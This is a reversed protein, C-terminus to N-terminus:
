HAENGEIYRSKVFHWHHSKLVLHYVFALGNLLHICITGYIRYKYVLAWAEFMFVGRDVFQIKTGNFLLNPFIEFQKLTFLMEKTKSQNFKKAM